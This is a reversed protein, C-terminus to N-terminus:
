KEELAHFWIPTTDGMWAGGINFDFFEQAESYTMDDRDMLITLVKEVDYVVLTPQGCRNGFGIIADDLGDATTLDCSEYDNM